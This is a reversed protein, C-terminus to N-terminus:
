YTGEDSDAEGAPKSAMEVRLDDGIREVSLFRGRWVDGIDYAGNGGFLGNADTGGFLAPALYVVYRDVLGSRHFRGAVNAGGEVLLQMVGESGLQDLLPGLDGSWVLCPQVKAQEDIDGLVVRRPDVSGLEEVIGTFM